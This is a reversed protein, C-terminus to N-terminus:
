PPPPTSPRPRALSVHYMHITREGIAALTDECFRFENITDTHLHVAFDHRDAAVLSGHLVAPAAGFDEHIKVGLAGGAVSEEVAGPDSCGRGLFGFNLCSFEAAHILNGLV